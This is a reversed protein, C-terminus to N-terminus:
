QSVITRIEELAQKARAVKGYSDDIARQREALQLDVQGLEGKMATLRPEVVAAEAELQEVRYAADRAETQAEALSQERQGLM